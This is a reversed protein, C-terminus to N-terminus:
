MYMVLFHGTATFTFIVRAFTLTNWGDVSLNWKKLGSPLGRGTWYDTYCTRTLGGAPAAVVSSNPAVKAISPLLIAIAEPGFIQGVDTLSLLHIYSTYTHHLHLHDICHENVVVVRILVVAM